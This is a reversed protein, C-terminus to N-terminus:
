PLAPAEYRIPKSDPVSPLKEISGEAKPDGSLPGWALLGFISKIKSIEKYGVHMLPPPSDLVLRKWLATCKIASRLRRM